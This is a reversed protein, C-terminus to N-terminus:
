LVTCQTGRLFGHCCLHPWSGRQKQHPSYQNWSPSWMSMQCVILPCLMLVQPYPQYFCMFVNILHPCLLSFYWTLSLSPTPLILICWFIQFYEISIAVKISACAYFCQICLPFIPLLPHFQCIQFIFPPLYFQCSFSSSSIRASPLLPSSLSALLIMFM